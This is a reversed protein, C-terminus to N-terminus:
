SYILDFKIPSVKQTEDTLQSSHVLHTEDNSHRTEKQQTEVSELSAHMM